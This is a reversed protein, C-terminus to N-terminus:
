VCVYVCVCVCVCLCAREYACARAGVCEFACVCVCRLVCVCVCLCVCVCVCVDSMVLVSPRPAPPLLKNESCNSRLLNKSFPLFLVRRSAQISIQAAEAICYLLSSAICYLLYLQASRLCVLSQVGSAASSFLFFRSFSRRPM